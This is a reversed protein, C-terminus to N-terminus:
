FVVTSAKQSCAMHLFRDPESASSLLFIHIQM